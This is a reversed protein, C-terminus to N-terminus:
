KKSKKLTRMTTTTCYLMTQLSNWFNTTHKKANTMHRQKTTTTGYKLPKKEFKELGQIRKGTVDRYGTCVCVRTGDSAEIEYADWNWGYVGCAYFMERAKPTRLLTQFECYGGRIIYIYNKNLENKTTKLKM